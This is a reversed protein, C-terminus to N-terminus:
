WESSSWQCLSILGQKLRLVSEHSHHPSRAANTTRHVAMADRLLVSIIISWELCSAEM